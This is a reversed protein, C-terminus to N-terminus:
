KNRMLAIRSQRLAVVDYRRPEDKLLSGEGLWGGTPVGTFTVSKGDMSVISIKVLGDVVGVWYSVQENKQCVLANLAFDKVLIDAAVQTQQAADLRGFWPASELLQHITRLIM